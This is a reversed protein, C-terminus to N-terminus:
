ITLVNPLTISWTLSFRRKVSNDFSSHIPLWLRSIMPKILMFSSTASLKAFDTRRLIDLFNGFFVFIFFYSLQCNSFPFGDVLKEFLHAFLLFLVYNFSLLCGAFLFLIICFCVRQGIAFRNSFIALLYLLFIVWFFILKMSKQKNITLLWM